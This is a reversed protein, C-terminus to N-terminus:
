RPATCGSLAINVASIIDTIDIDGSADVDGAVCTSYAGEGLAVRVLKILEDITVQGSGDCDGACVRPTPTATATAALTPTATSKVSPTPTATPTESPSAISTETPTETPAAEAPIVQVEFTTSAAKDGIISGTHNTSNGAGYLIYTGTAAPAQWTFNWAAVGNADNLKGGPQGHPPPAHTLEGDILIEQEGEITVLEGGDASVDLGAAVQTAPAQSQVVFRFTATAGAVVHEPGEFSVLPAVTTPRYVNHCATCIAGEGVTAANGSYGAIGEAFAFAGTPRILLGVLALVGSLCVLGARSCM